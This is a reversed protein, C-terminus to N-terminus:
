KNSSMLTQNPVISNTLLGGDDLPRPCCGKVTYVAIRIQKPTGYLFPSGCPERKKYTPPCAVPVAKAQPLVGNAPLFVTSFTSNKTINVIREYTKRLAISPLVWQQFCHTLIVTGLSATQYIIVTLKIKIHRITSDLGM